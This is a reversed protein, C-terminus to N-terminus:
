SAGREVAVAAYDHGDVTLGPVCIFLDGPKVKRSDTAMGTVETAGDGILRSTVLQSALEQLQM